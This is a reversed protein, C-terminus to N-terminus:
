VSSWHCVVPNNQNTSPLSVFSTNRVIESVKPKSQLGMFLKMTNFQVYYRAMAHGCETPTVKGPHGDETILAFNNLEELHRM